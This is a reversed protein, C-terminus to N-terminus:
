GFVARCFEAGNQIVFFKLQPFSEQLDTLKCDDLFVDDGVRLATGPLLVGFVDSLDAASLAKKIDRGALLGSVNVGGGFTENTVPLVEIRQAATQGLTERAIKKLIPAFAAGSVAVFKRPESKCGGASKLATEVESWFNRILGIGNALQPFEDYYELPPIPQKALLYFEDSLYVFTNGRERRSKEQWPAIQRIVKEAEAATFDRLPFNDRRFRTLGVPVIALSLIHPRRRFLETVTYELEAGDNLEPCLVVQAHCSAGAATLRDLDEAIRAARPSRLMRARLEGNMTHVSVFLPTLHLAAIRGYDAETMNTLTIFNGYLFSLRYDDDKVSLSPRMKPPLQQVFCFCCANRCSRVGDFVASVFEAGLEEDADKDFSIMEENGDAHRVLLDIEEEAFAFSFDIIDGPEQENVSLIVDGAALGIEEALSRPQVGAIIAGNM